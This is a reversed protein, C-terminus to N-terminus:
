REVLKLMAPDVSMAGSHAQEGSELVVVATVEAPVCGMFKEDLLNYTKRVEKRPPLARPPNGDQFSAPRQPAAPDERLAGAFHLWIQRVAEDTRGLNRAVVTVPYEGSHPAFVLSELEVTVKFKRDEFWTWIQWGLGILSLGLAVCGIIFAAIEM